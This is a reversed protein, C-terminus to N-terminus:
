LQFRAAYALLGLQPEAPCYKLMGGSIVSKYSLKQTRFNLRFFKGSSISRGKFQHLLHAIPLVRMLFRSKILFYSMKGSRQRLSFLQVALLKGKIINIICVARKFQKSLKVPRGSYSYLM